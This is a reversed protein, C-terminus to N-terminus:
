HVEGGHDSPPPAALARTVLRALERTGGHKWMDEYGFGRLLVRITERLLREGIFFYPGNYPSDQEGYMQEPVLGEHVVEHRAKGFSSFWHGLDTLTLTKTKGAKKTFTFDRHAHDDPSWLLHETSEANAGLVQLTAFAGEIVAIAEAADSTGTLAEFATRLMVIRDEPGLGTTNRWAKALWRVATSIRHALVSDIGDHEGSAVRYIANASDAVFRADLPIHLELPARIELQSDSLKWPGSTVTVLSGRGIAIRSDTVDIPQAWLDANDSTSVWWGDSEATWPPNADLVGFWLALQLASVDSEGPFAGDIGTDARVVIAPNKLPRGDADRFKEMFSKAPAELAANKWPSPFSAVPGLDWGGFQYTKKLPLYPVAVIYPKHNTM